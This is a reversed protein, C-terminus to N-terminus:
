QEYISLYYDHMTKAKIVNNSIENYKLGTRAEQWPWETHTLVELGFGTNEGYTAWVRELFDLDNKDIIENINNFANHDSTIITEVENRKTSFKNYLVPSVPGHIWAEYDTKELVNTINNGDDNNLAIYWAQAYYCLKMLKTITMDNDSERTVFYHAVQIPDYKGYNGYEMEMSDGKIMKIRGFLHIFNLWQFM